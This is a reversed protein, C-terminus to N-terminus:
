TNDLDQAIRSAVHLRRRFITSRQLNTVIAALAAVKDRHPRYVPVGPAMTRGDAIRRASLLLHLISSWGLSGPCTSKQLRDRVTHPAEPAEWLYLTTMALHPLGRLPVIVIKGDQCVIVSRSRARTM